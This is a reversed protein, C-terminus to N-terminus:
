RGAGPSAWRNMVAEGSGDKGLSWAITANAM